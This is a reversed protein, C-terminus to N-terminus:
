RRGELGKVAAASILSRLPLLPLTLLAGAGLILLTDRMSPIKVAGTLLGNLNRLVPLYRATAAGLAALMPLLCLLGALWALVIKGHHGRPLDKRGSAFAHRAGSHFACGATLLMLSAALAIGIRRIGTMQDGGGINNRIMRLLTFTDTNGSVLSWGSAILAILLSGWLLLFGARKLGCSLKAGYLDFSVLERNGLKGGDLASRMACAANMRAPIMLFIWLLPTAAAIWGMGERSLALLPALCILTLCLEVVLFKLTEGFSAGYARGAERLMGYKKM